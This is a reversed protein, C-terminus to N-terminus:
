EQKKKERDRKLRDIMRIRFYLWQSYYCIKNNNRRSYIRRTKRKKNALPITYPISHSTCARVARKRLIWCDACLLLLLLLLFFVYKAFNHAVGVDTNAWTILVKMGRNLRCHYFPFCHVCVVDVFFVFCIFIFIFIFLRLAFMFLCKHQWCIRFLIYEM